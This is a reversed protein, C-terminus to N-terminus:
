APLTFPYNVRQPKFSLTECTFENHNVHNCRRTDKKFDSSVM